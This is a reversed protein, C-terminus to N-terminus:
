PNTVLDIVQAFQPHGFDAPQCGEVPSMVTLETNAGLPAPTKLELTFNTTTKKNAEVIMTEGTTLTLTINETDKAACQPIRIGGSVSTLPEKLNIPHLTFTAEPAITWWWIRTTAPWKM